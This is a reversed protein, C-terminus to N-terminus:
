RSAWVMGRTVLAKAEPIEFDRDTHGWAAVFVRGDGYQRTWAYPMVTDAPYTKADGYEGTFRTTCLVHVGPDVHMYYQETNRLVFESIGETIPHNRDVIQVPYETETNGPHAVWQGGTMFQYGPHNRFSDILGGHFGALGTGQYVAGSLGKWQEPTLEGCTWVQVILDMTRLRQHDAYVELTNEMAVEFGARELEPAFVEASAQPTHGEWGGYVIMAQKPTKGKENM